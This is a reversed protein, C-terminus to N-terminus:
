VDTDPRYRRYAEPTDIDQLITPTDVTVYHIQEQYRSLFDRMTEARGLRCIEPWLCRDVIWPHGRRMQYSPVVLPAQTTRYGQLVEAAVSVQIQPQDGLAIIAASVEPEMASLGVKLSHTMGKGEYVPNFVARLRVGHLNAEDLRALAEEVQRRAGGTVVIIEDLGSQALVTAVRGIVTTEGWPLSMKPRGMRHSQGAALVLAAIM